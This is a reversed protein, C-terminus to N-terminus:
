CEDALRLNVQCLSSNCDAPAARQINVRGLSHNTKDLVHQKTLTKLSYSEVLEIGNRPAPRANRKALSPYNSAFGAIEVIHFLPTAHKSTMVPIAPESKRARM